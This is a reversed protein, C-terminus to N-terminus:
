VRRGRQTPLEDLKGSFWAVASKLDPLVDSDGHLDTQERAAEYLERHSDTSPSFGSVPWSHGNRFAFTRECTRNLTKLDVDDTWLLQIDVLDHMRNSFPETLAHIKQALQNEIAILRVPGIPGFGLAETLYDADKSETYAASTTLDIEDHGVELDVSSWPKGLFDLRIRYPQMVYHEPISDPIHKKVVKIDGTFAIKAPADANKKLASKSPPVSGWGHTLRTSLDEMFQEHNASAALVVDLDPTARSNVEGRRIRIGQGGKVVLSNPLMQAVILGTILSRARKVVIGYHDAIEAVRLNLEAGSIPAPRLPM